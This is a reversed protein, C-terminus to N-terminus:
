VRTGKRKMAIFSTSYYNLMKPNKGSSARRCSWGNEMLYLQLQAAFLPNATKDYVTIVYQCSYEMPVGNEFVGFDMTSLIYTIAREPEGPFADGFYAKEKSSLLDYLEKRLDELVIDVGNMKAVIGELSRDTAM